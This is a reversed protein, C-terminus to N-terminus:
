WSFKLSKYVNTRLLDKSWNYSIEDLCKINKFVKSEFNEYM